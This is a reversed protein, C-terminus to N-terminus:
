SAGLIRKTIAEWTTVRSPDRRYDEMRRDLEAIQEPTIPVDAPHAALDDWLETVLVLKEDPSLRKIEPHQELIMRASYQNAAKSALEPGVAEIRVARQACLLMEHEVDLQFRPQLSWRHVCRVDNRACIELVKVPGNRLLKGM